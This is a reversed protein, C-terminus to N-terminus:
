IRQDCQQVRFVRTRKLRDTSKRVLCTWHRQAPGDPWRRHPHHSRDRDGPNRRSFCFVHLIDSWFSPRQRQYWVCHYAFWGLRKSSRPRVSQGQMIDAKSGRQWCRSGTRLIHRRKFHRLQLITHDTWLGFHLLSHWRWWRGHFCIVSPIADAADGGKFVFIM